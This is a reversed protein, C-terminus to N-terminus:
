WVSNIESQIWVFGWVHVTSSGLALCVSNSTDLIHAESCCCHFTHCSAAKHFLWRAKRMTNPLFVFYESDIASVDRFTKSSTKLCLGSQRNLAFPNQNSVKKQLRLRQGLGFDLALCVSLISHIPWHQSHTVQADCKCSYTVTPATSGLTQMFSQPGCGFLIFMNIWGRRVKPTLFVSIWAYPFATKKEPNHLPMITGTSAGAAGAGDISLVLSSCICSRCCLPSQCCPIVAEAASFHSKM